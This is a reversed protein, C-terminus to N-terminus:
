SLFFDQRFAKVSILVKAKSDPEAVLSVKLLEKDYKLIRFNSSIGIWGKWGDEILSNKQSGGKAPQTFALVFPAAVLQLAEM